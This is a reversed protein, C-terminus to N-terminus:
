ADYEGIAGTLILVGRIHALSPDQITWTMGPGTLTFEPATSQRLESSLCWLGAATTWRVSRDHPHRSAHAPLLADVDALLAALETSGPEGRENQMRTKAEAIETLSRPPVIVNSPACWSAAVDSLTPTYPGIGGFNHILPTGDPAKGLPEHGEEMVCQISTRPAFVPCQPREPMPGGHPGKGIM